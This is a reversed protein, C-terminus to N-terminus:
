YINEKRLITKILEEPVDPTKVILNNIKSLLWYDYNFSFDANIIFSHEKGAFYTYQFFYPTSKRDM